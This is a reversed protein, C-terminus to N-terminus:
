QKSMCIDTDTGTGRFLQGTQGVLLSTETDHQANGCKFTDHEYRTQALGVQKVGRLPVICHKVRSLNAFIIAATPVLPVRVRLKWKSDM